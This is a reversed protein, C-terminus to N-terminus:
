EIYGTLLRVERDRKDMAEKHFDPGQPSRVLHRVVIDTQVGILMGAAKVRDCFSSDEGVEGAVWPSQNSPHRVMADLMREWPNGPLRRFPNEGDFITHCFNDVEAAADLPRMPVRLAFWPDPIREFVHRKALLFAAGTRMVNVVGQGPFWSEWTGTGTDMTPLGTGGRLNCYGGVVDLHPHSGYATVLLDFLAQPEWLMDMDLFMIWQAPSALFQRVADNRAKDVLAGAVLNYSINTLGQKENFSRSELLAFATESVVSGWSTCAVVGPPIQITADTM